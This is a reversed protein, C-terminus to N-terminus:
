GGPREGNGAPPAHLDPLLDLKVELITKRKLEETAGKPRDCVPGLDAMKPQLQKGSCKIVEDHCFSLALPLFLCGATHWSSQASGPDTRM